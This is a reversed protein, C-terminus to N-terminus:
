VVSVTTKSASAPTNSSNLKCHTDGCDINMLGFHEDMGENRSDRMTFYFAQDPGKFKKMYTPNPQGLIKKAHDVVSLDWSLFHAYIKKFTEHSCYDKCRRQLDNAGAPRPTSWGTEGIWYPDDDNGTLMTIRKRSSAVLDENYSGTALDISNTCKTQSGPDLFLNNDWIAYINFTWVWRQGYTKFAKTLLTNVRAQTDEKFPTASNPPGLVSMGWVSTLKATGFGAADMEIQSSQIFRWFRGNDAWLENICAQTTTPKRWDVDMENGFGVASVHEPGVRKMLDLTDNWNEADEAPECTVLTGFFVKANQDKIWKVLKDQTEKKKTADGWPKKWAAFLRLHKVPEHTHPWLGPIDSGCSKFTTDDLCLGKNAMKLTPSIKLDSECSFGPYSFTTLTTVTTTTTTVTTPSPTTGGGGGCGVLTLSLPILVCAAMLACHGCRGVDAMPM